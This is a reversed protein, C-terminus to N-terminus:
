NCSCLYARILAGASEALMLVLLCTLFARGMNFPKVKPRKM